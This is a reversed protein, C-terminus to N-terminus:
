PREADAGVRRRRLNRLNAALSSKPRDCVGPNMDIDSDANEIQRKKTPRHRFINKLRTSSQCRRGFFNKAADSHPRTHTDSKPEPMNSVILKDLRRAASADAGVRRHPLHPFTTAANAGAGCSGGRGMDRWRLSKSFEWRPSAVPPVVLSPVVNFRCTVAKGSGLDRLYNSGVTSSTQVPPARRHLSHRCVGRNASSRGVFCAYVTIGTVGGCM